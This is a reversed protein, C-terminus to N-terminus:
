HPATAYQGPQQQAPYFSGQTIRQEALREAEADLYTQLPTKGSLWRRIAEHGEAVGVLTNFDKWWSLRPERVTEDPNMTNKSIVGSLKCYHKALENAATDSGCVLICEM